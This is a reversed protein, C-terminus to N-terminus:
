RFCTGLLSNECDSLNMDEPTQFGRGSTRLDSGLRKFNLDPQLFM